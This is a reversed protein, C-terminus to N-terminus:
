FYEIELEGEARGSSPNDSSYWGDGHIDRLEGTASEPIIKLRVNISALCNGTVRFVVSGSRGDIKGTFVLQGDLAAGSELFLMVYAARGSGELGGTFEFDTVVTGMHSPMDLKTDLDTDKHDITQITFRVRTLDRASKTTGPPAATPTARPAPAPAAPKVTSM